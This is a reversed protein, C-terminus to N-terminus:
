RLTVRQTVGAQLTVPHPGSARGGSESVGHIRIASGVPLTIIFRETGGAAVSGLTARPGGSEYSVIMAVGSENRVEVAALASRDSEVVMARACGSSFLALMALLPILLTRRGVGTRVHGPM